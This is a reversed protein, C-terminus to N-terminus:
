CVDRIAREGFDQLDVVEVKKGQKKLEKALRKADKRPSETVIIEYDKAMEEVEEVPEERCFVYVKEIENRKKYDEISKVDVRGMKQTFGILIM